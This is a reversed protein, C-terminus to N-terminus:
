AAKAMSQYESMAAAREEHTVTALGQRSVWEWAWRRRRASWEDEQGKRLAAARVQILADTAAIVMSGTGHRDLENRLLERDTGVSRAMAEAFGHHVGEGAELPGILLALTQQLGQTVYPHPMVPVGAITRKHYTLLLRNLTRFVDLFNQLGNINGRRVHRMLRRDCHRQFFHWLADRLADAEETRVDVSWDEPFDESFPDRPRWGAARGAGGRTGDDFRIHTNQLFTIADHVSGLRDLHEVLGEGTEVLRSLSDASSGNDGRNRLLERLQVVAVRRSAVREGEHRGELWAFVPRDFLPLQAEPLKLSVSHSNSALALRCFPLLEQARVLVLELREVGSSARFSGQLNGQEELNLFQLCILPDAEPDASPEDCPGPSFTDPMIETFEIEDCALAEPAGKDATFWLCTESNGGLFAAVSANASGTLWFTQNPTEFAFAKAHLRRGPPPSATVLRARMGAAILDALRLGNLNSYHPQAHIVLEASPWLAGLRALLSLEADFFPALVTIRKVREGNLREVLQPLLPRHHSAILEISENAESPAASDLWALTEAAPSFFEQELLRSSGASDIAIRRLCTFASRIVQTQVGGLDPTKTLFSSVLEMNRGTGAATCNNSGILAMGGQAGVSVYLKPHFVGGMREIPVVLYRRNFQGGFHGGEVLDRYRREDMFVVIRDADGFARRLLIRREFFVPDFEYTAIFAFKGSLADFNKLVDIQEM